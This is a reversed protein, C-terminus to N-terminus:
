RIRPQYLAVAETLLDSSFALVMCDDAKSVPHAVLYPEHRKFFLVHNPDGVIEEKGVRKVFEGARPFVIHNAKSAEEAGCERAHPRCSVDSVTVSRSRHLVRARLTTSM